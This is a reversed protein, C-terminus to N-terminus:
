RPELFEEPLPDDFDDHIIIQGRFLGLPRKPLPVPEKGTPEPVLRVQTGAGKILVEEGRSARVVLDALHAEAEHIPVIITV